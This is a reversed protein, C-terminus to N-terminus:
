SELRRFVLGAGGYRHFIEAVMDVQQDDAEVAIITSGARIDEIYARAEEESAAVNVEMLMRQFRNDEDTDDDARAASGGLLAALPGGVLAFGIGPVALTAASLLGLAAFGSTAGASGAQEPQEATDETEEPRPAVLGIREQAINHSLLDQVTDLAHHYSSFRGIIKRTM